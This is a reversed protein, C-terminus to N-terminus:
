WINQFTVCLIHESGEVYYKLLEAEFQCQQLENQRTLITLKTIQEGVKEMDKHNIVLCLWNEKDKWYKDFLETENVIDESVDGECNIILNYLNSTKQKINNICDNVFIQEWVIGGILCLAIFIVLLGRKM